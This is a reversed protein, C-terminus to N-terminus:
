PKPTPESKPEIVREATWGEETSGFLVTGSMKDGDLNGSFSMTLDNGQYSITYSFNVIDGKITGTIPLDGSARKATGTLKEGDAKLVVKFPRAGGPTNFMGSWEGDVPSSFAFAAGVSVFFLAAFFITSFIIRNM